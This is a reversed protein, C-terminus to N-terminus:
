EFSALFESKSLPAIQYTLFKRIKKKEFNKDFPQTRNKQHELIVMKIFIKLLSFNSFKWRVSQAIMSIQIERRIQVIHKHTIAILFFLNRLYNKKTHWFRLVVKRAVSKLYFWVTKQMHYFIDPAHVSPLTLFSRYGSTSSFGSTFWVCHYRGSSTLNKNKWIRQIWVFFTPKIGSIIRKIQNQLWIKIQRLLFHFFQFKKWLRNNKVNFYLKKPCEQNCTLDVRLARVLCKGIVYLFGNPEKEFRHSTFHDETKPM